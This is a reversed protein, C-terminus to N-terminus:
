LGPKVFFPKLTLPTLDRQSHRFAQSVSSLIASILILTASGWGVLGVYAWYARSDVSGEEREEEKTLSGDGVSEDKEEHVKRSIFEEKEEKEGGKQPDEEELSPIDQDQDQDQNKQSEFETSGKIENLISESLVEDYSGEFLLDTNSFFLNSLFLPSRVNFSM